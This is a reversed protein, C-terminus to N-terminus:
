DAKSKKLPYTIYTHIQMKLTFAKFFYVNIDKELQCDIRVDSEERGGREWTEYGQIQELLPNSKSLSLLFSPGRGVGQQNRGGAYGRSSIQYAFEYLM